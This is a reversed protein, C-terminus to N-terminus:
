LRELKENIPEDDIGMDVFLDDITTPQIDLKKPRHVKNMFKPIEWKNLNDITTPVISDLERLHKEYDRKNLLKGGFKYTAVCTKELAEEIDKLAEKVPRSLNSDEKLDDGMYLELTKRIYDLDHKYDTM